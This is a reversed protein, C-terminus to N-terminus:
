QKKSRKEPLFDSCDLEISVAFLLGAFFIGALMLLGLFVGVFVLGGYTVGAFILGLFSFMGLTFLSAIKIHWSTM